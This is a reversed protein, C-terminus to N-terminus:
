ANQFFLRRNISGIAAPAGAVPQAFVVLLAPWGTLKLDCVGGQATDTRMQALNCTDALASNVLNHRLKLYLRLYWLSPSLRLSLPSKGLRRSWKM